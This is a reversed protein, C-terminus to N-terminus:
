QRPRPARRVFLGERDGYDLARLWRELYEAGFPAVWGLQVNVQLTISWQDALRGLQRMAQLAPIKSVSTLRLQEITLLGYSRRELRHGTKANRATESITLQVGELEFTKVWHRPLVEPPAVPGGVLGALSWFFWGQNEREHGKARILLGDSLLTSVM